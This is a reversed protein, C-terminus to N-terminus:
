RQIKQLANTASRRVRENEHSCLELLRPVAGQARPGLEGIDHVTTVIHPHALNERLQQELELLRFRVEMGEFRSDLRELAIATLLRVREDPSNTLPAIRSIIPERFPADKAALSLGALHGYPLNTAFGSVWANMIQEDEVAFRSFVTVALGNMPDKPEFLKLVVPRIEAAVWENTSLADIARSRGEFIEKSNDLRMSINAPLRSCIRQRWEWMFPGRVNDVLRLVEGSPGRYDFSYKLLLLVPICVLVGFVVTKLRRRSRNPPESGM